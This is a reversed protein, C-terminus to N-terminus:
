CHISMLVKVMIFCVNTSVEKLTCLIFESDSTWLQTLYAPIILIHDGDAKNQTRMVTYLFANIVQWASLAMYCAPM